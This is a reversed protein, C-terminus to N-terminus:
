LMPYKFDMAKQMGIQRLLNTASPTNKLAEIFINTDCLIM